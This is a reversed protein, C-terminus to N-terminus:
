YSCEVVVRSVRTEKCKNYLSVEHKVPTARIKYTKGVVMGTTDVSFYVILNKGDELANIIWFGKDKIFRKSIIKIKITKRVKLEGVYDSHERINDIINQYEEREKAQKIYLPFSSILGNNVLTISKNQGIKTTNLLSALNKEYSTATDQLLKFSIEQLVWEIEEKVENLYENSICYPIIGNRLISVMESKSEDINFEKQYYIKKSIALFYAIDLDALKRSDFYALNLPLKFNMKFVQIM